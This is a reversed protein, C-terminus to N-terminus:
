PAPWTALSGGWIAVALLAASVLWFTPSLWRAPEGEVEIGPRDSPPRMASGGERADMLSEMALLSHLKTRLQGAIKRKTEGAAHDPSAGAQGSDKIRERIRRTRQEERVAAEYAKQAEKRDDEVSRLRAEWTRVAETQPISVDFRALRSEDWDPGLNKIRISLNDEAQKRRYRAEPLKELRDRHLELARYQTEVDDFVDALADSLKEELEGRQQEKVRQEAESEDLTRRAAQYEGLVTALSDEPDSPFRDIPELGGFEGRAQEMEHWDPWCDILTSHRKLEHRLSRDRDTLMELRKKCEEEEQVLRPYRLAAQKAEVFRGELEELKLVLEKIWSQGRPRYLVTARQELKAIVERASRGAGSIGASFIRDRIGEATLTDFSHLESLSFAFVSRYLSEDMGGLLQHLDAEAGERGDPLIIRPGSRDKAFREINFTGAPTELFVRGGHRGGQLPLYQLEQKRVSFGFLIRRLFALLTTKGAENPGLFITLGHPLGDTKHQGYVGFGEIYWGGIKM